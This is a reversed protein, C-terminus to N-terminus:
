SGEIRSLSNQPMISSIVHVGLVGGFKLYLGDVSLLRVIFRLRKLSSCIM